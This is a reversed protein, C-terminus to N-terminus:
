GHELQMAGFGVRLVDHGDLKGYAYVPSTTMATPRGIRHGCASGIGSTGASRLLLPVSEAQSTITTESYSRRGPTRLSAWRLRWRMMSAAVRARVEPAPGTLISVM